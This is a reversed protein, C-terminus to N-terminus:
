RPDAPKRPAQTRADGALYAKLPERLLTRAEQMRKRVNVETLDLLVAIESYSLDGRLRLEAVRRLRPPLGRIRDRVLAILEGELLMSELGPGSALTEDESDSGDWAVWRRRQRHIDMCKNYVLRLLWGRAEDPQLKPPWKKLAALAAEGLADDADERRGGTWIM